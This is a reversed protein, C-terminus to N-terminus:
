FVPERSNRTSYPSLDYAEILFNLILVLKGAAWIPPGVEYYGSWPQNARMMGAHGYQLNNYCSNIMNWAITSYCYFFLLCISYLLCTVVVYIM